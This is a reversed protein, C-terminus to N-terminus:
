EPLVDQHHGVVYQGPNTLSTATCAWGFTKECDYDYARWPATLNHRDIDNDELARQTHTDSFAIVSQDSKIYIELSDVGLAVAPGTSNGFLAYSDAVTSWEDARFRESIDPTM